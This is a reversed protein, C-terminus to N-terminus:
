VKLWSGQDTRFWVMVSGRWLTLDTDASRLPVQSYLGPICFACFIEWSLCNESELIEAPIDSLLALSSQIPNYCVQPVIPHGRLRISQDPIKIAFNTVCPHSEIKFRGILFRSSQSIHNEQKDLHHVTPHYQLFSVVDTRQHGNGVAYPSRVRAYFTSPRTQSVRCNFMYIRM